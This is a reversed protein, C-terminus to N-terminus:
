VFNYSIDKKCFDVLFAKLYNMPAIYIYGGLMKKAFALNEKETYYKM